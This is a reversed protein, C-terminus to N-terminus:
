PFNRWKRILVVIIDLMFTIIAGILVTFLFAHRNVKNRANIDEIIFQVGGNRFLRKISEYSNYRIESPTIVDPQPFVYKVDFPNGSESYTIRFGESTEFLSDLEFRPLEVYYNFTTYKNKKKNKLSFNIPFHLTEKYLYDDDNSNIILVPQEFLLESHNSEKVILMISDMTNNPNYRIYRQSNTKNDIILTDYNSPIHPFGRYISDIRHFFRNIDCYLQVGPIDTTVQFELNKTSFRGWINKKVSENNGDLIYNLLCMVSDDEITFSGNFRYCQFVEDSKVSGRGRQVLHNIPMTQVAIHSYLSEEHKETLKYLAVVLVLLLILVFVLTVGNSLFLAIKKTKLLGDFMFLHISGMCDKIAKFAKKIWKM